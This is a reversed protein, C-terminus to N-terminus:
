LRGGGVRDRRLEGGPEERLLGRTTKPGHGGRIPRGKAGIADLEDAVAMAGGNAEGAGTQSPAGFPCREGADIKEAGGRAGEIPGGGDAGGVGIGAHINDEPHLIATQLRLKLQCRPGIGGGGTVTDIACM